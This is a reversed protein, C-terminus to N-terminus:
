GDGGRGEDGVMGDEVDDARRWCMMVAATVEEMMLAADALQKILMAELIGGWWVSVDKDIVWTWNTWFSM